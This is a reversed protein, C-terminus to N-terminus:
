DGIATFGGSRTPYSQDASRFRATIIYASSRLLNASPTFTGAVGTFAVGMSVDNLFYELTGGDLDLEIGLIDGTDFASGYATLVSNHYSEGTSQLLGYSDTTTGSPNDVDEAANSIGYFNQPVSLDTDNLYIEWYWKGSSVYRTARLLSEIYNDLSTKAATRNGNSFDYNAGSDAPNWAMTSGAITTAGTWTSQGYHLTPIM